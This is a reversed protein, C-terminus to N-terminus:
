KKVDNEDVVQKMLEYFTVDWNAKTEKTWKNREIIKSLLPSGGTTKIKRMEQPIIWRGQADPEYLPIAYGTQGVEPATGIRIPQNNGLAFPLMMYKEGKGEVIKKTEEDIPVVVIKGSVPDKAKVAPLVAVTSMYFDKLATTTFTPAGEDLSIIYRNTPHQIKTGSPEASVAASYPTYLNNLKKNYNTTLPGVQFSTPAVQEGLGIQIDTRSFTRYDNQYKKPINPIVYDNYFEDYLTDFDMKTPDQADPIGDWYLESRYQQQALPNNSFWAKAMDYANQEINVHPDLKKLEIAEKRNYPISIFRDVEREKDNKQVNKEIVVGMTSLDFVKKSTLIESFNFKKHVIRNLRKLGKADPNITVYGDVFIDPNELMKQYLEEESRVSKSIEAAKQMSPPIYEGKEPGLQVQKEFNFLDNSLILFNDRKSNLSNFSKYAKTVGEPDNSKEIQYLENIFNSTLEENAGIYANHYKNQDASVRARIAALQTDKKDKFKDAEQNISLKPFKGTAGIAAGLSFGSAM